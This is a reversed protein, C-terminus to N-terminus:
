VGPRHLCSGGARSESGIIALSLGIMVFSSTVDIALSAAPRALLRSLRRGGAALGFFWLPSVLAVGIAFIIRETMPFQLGFGGVLLVMELYVQPNLLSLALAAVVVFAPAGLATTTPSLDLSARHRVAAALSFCGYALVFLATGWTATSEVQPLLVILAEAGAVAGAIMAFDVLTCILAVLLAAEGRIGQRLVFVSQPGLSGCISAGLMLGQLLPM